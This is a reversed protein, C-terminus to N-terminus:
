PLYMTLLYVEDSIDVLLPRCTSLSIELNCWDASIVSLTADYGDPIEFTDNRLPYAPEELTGNNGFMPIDLRVRGQYLEDHLIVGGHFTYSVTIGTDDRVISREPTIDDTFSNLLRFANTQLFVM